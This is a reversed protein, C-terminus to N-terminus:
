RLIASYPESLSRAGEVEVALEVDGVAAHDLEDFNELEVDREELSRDAGRLLV